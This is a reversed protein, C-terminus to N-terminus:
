QSLACVRTYVPQAGFSLAFPGSENGEVIVSLTMAQDLVVGSYRAPRRPYGGIPVPGAQVTFTGGAEFRGAADPNLAEDITGAACAFRLTGGSATVQLEIDQGGWRGQRVRANDGCAVLVLAAATVVHKWRM